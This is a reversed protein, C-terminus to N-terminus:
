AQVVSRQEESRRTVLIVQVQLSVDDTSSTVMSAPLSCQRGETKKYNKKLYDLLCYREQNSEVTSKGLM